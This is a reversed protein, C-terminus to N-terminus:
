KSIDLFINKIIGDVYQVNKNTNFIYVDLNHGRYMKLMDTDFFEYDQSIFDIKNLHDSHPIGETILGVKYGSLRCM